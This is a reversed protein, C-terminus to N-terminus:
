APSSAYPTVFRARIKGPDVTWVTLVCPDRGDPSPISCRATFKVGHVTLSIDELQNRVPHVRLATDLEFPRLPSFGQSTYFRAKGSTLLYVLKRPDIQLNDGAPLNTV